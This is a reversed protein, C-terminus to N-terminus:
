DTILMNYALQHIRPRINLTYLKRNNRTPHVRNSLFIVILDHAPDAWVFTGTFGSHGFSYPSADKAVYSKEADYELLPKDFGLGRRNENHCFQHATFELVTKEEIIRTGDLIGGNAYMQFLRFLGQANGFLGANCSVGGLMAAAEDHTWGHVLEQRFLSDYETPVIRRLDTFVAPNYTLSQIGLPDFIDKQLVDLYKRGTHLEIIEPLIQFFLGSYRYDKESDVPSKRIFKKMKRTYRQHMYLSDSVRINYKNSPEDRFTRRKFKGNKRKTKQWFVLYPVMGSQHALIERVSLDGKNSKRFPPYVSGLTQDLSIVGQDVMRMLIPLGSSVKTVSALDYLDDTSVAILSDYTHFGYAKEFIVKGNHSILVQAGPYAMSDLGEQVILDISDQFGLPLEQQCHGASIGICMQAISLIVIQRFIKLLKHV